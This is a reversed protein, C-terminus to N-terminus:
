WQTSIFGLALGGAISYSFPIGVIILFAPIVTSIGLAAGAVTGIADSVMAQKARRLKSDRMLGAQECM